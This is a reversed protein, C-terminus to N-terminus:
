RKWRQGNVAILVGLPIIGYAPLGGLTLVLALGIMGAALWRPVRVQRLLGVIGWLRSM